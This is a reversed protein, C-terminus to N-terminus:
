GSAPFIDPSPDNPSGPWKTYDSQHTGPWHSVRDGFILIFLSWSIGNLSSRQGGCVYVYIHMHSMMHTDAIHVYVHMCACM